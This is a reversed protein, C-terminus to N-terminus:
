SLYCKATQRGKIGHTPGRNNLCLQPLAAVDRKMLRRHLLLFYPFLLFPTPHHSRIVWGSCGRGKRSGKMGQIGANPVSEHRPSM